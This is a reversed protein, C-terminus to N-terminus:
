QLRGEWKETLKIRVDISTSLVLVGGLSGSTRDARDKDRDSALNGFLASGGIKSVPSKKGARRRVWM